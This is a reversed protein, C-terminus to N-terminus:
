LLRIEARHGPAEALRADATVLPVGLGEALAVYLADYASLNARLEWLRGLLEAHAHRRIGMDGYLDLMRRAVPSPLGGSLNWRRLAQVVEADILHPAHLDFPAATLATRFREGPASGKLLELVASADVVLM